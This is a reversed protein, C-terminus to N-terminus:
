NYPLWVNKGPKYNDWNNMGLCELEWGISKGLKLLIFEYDTLKCKLKQCNCGSPRACVCVCVSM